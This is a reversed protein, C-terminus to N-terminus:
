LSSSLRTYRIIIQLLISMQGIGYSINASTVFFLKDMNLCLMISHLVNSLSNFGNVSVPFVTTEVFSVTDESKLQYEQNEPLNEACKIQKTMNFLDTEFKLFIRKAM